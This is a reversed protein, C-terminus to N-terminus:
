LRADVRSSTSSLTEGIQPYETRHTVLVTAYVELLAPVVRDFSLTERLAISKHRLENRLATDCLVRGIATALETPDGSAVFVAADQFTERLGPLESAVTPTATALALHAIGSQSVNTYPLVIMQASGLLAMMEPTPVFGTFEVRDGLDYETVQRRLNTAYRHDRGEFARFIGRRPRVSGAIVCRWDMAPLHDRILHLADVLHHVGKDPHLYGLSLILPRSDPWAPAGGHLTPASAVGHPLVHVKATDAHCEACLINRAESTHVIVSDAMRVLLAHILRGVRGPLIIERRVEHLTVVLRTGHRRRAILAGILAPVADAGLAPIAFQVHIVDPKRTSLFRVCRLLAGPTPALIRRVTGLEPSIFRGDRSRAVAPAKSTLVCVDESAQLRTVIEATYPAIGDHAPPYPAVMVVNM